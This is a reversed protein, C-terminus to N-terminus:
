AEIPDRALSELSLRLADDVEGTALAVRSLGSLARGDKPDLENAEFYCRVAGDGDNTAMAADAEGLLAELKVDNRESAQARAFEARAARFQGRQAQHFGDSLAELAPEGARHAVLAVFNAGSGLAQDVDFGSSLLLRTLARESFARCAPALLRQ